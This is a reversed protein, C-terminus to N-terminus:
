GSRRQRVAYYELHEKCYSAPERVRKQGANLLKSGAVPKQCGGFLCTGSRRKAARALAERERRAAKCAACRVSGEEPEGGCGRCTGAAYPM